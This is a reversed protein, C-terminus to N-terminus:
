KKFSTAPMNTSYTVAPTFASINGSTDKSRLWYYRKDSTTLIDRYTTASKSVTAISKATTNDNTLSSYVEISALDLDTPNTWKLDVYSSSTSGSVAFDTITSTVNTTLDTMQIDDYHVSIDSQQSSFNNWDPKYAGVKLYYETNKTWGWTRDNDSYVLTDNKFVKIHKMSSICDIFPMAICAISQLGLGIMWLLHKLFSWYRNAYFQHLLSLDLLLLIGIINLFLLIGSSTLVSSAGLLLVGAYYFRTGTKVSVSLKYM